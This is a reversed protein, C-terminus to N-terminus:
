QQVRITRTQMRWTKGKRDFLWGIMLSPLCDYDVCLDDLSVLVRALIGDMLM